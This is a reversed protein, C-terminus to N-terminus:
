SESEESSITEKIVKLIERYRRKRGARYRGPDLGAEAARLRLENEGMAVGKWLDTGTARIYPLGFDFGFVAIAAHPLSYNDGLGIEAFPFNAAWDVHNGVSMARPFVSVQAHAICNERRIGYKSRLMETLVKAAHVQAPNIEAGDAARKTEAEFSIGIFSPNLNVYVLDADAWISYGSHNASDTERVVRHVRGFRDVVFHYARKRQVYELMWKGVRKLRRNYSKRFPAQQNETTHYLIGVPGSRWEVLELTERDYVPYRRTNNAVTFHNEIRLGNSYVEYSGRDDVLWVDPQRDGMTAGPEPGSIIPVPSRQLSDSITPLPLLLVMALAISSYRWWRVRERRRNDRQEAERMAGQLYRLKAVPDSYAKARTEVACRGKFRRASHVSGM